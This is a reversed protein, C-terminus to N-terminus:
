PKFGLKENILTSIGYTSVVLGRVSEANKFIIGDAPPQLEGTAVMMTNVASATIQGYANFGVSVYGKVTINEAASSSASESLRVDLSTPNLSSSETYKLSSWDAPKEFKAPLSGSADPPVFYIGTPLEVVDGKRVWFAAGVAPKVNVMVAARRLYTEPDDKDGWVVISANSLNLAAQARAGSVLASLSSQAGQMAVGRDGNSLALGLSGVLIGIVAIVVLLEVLTFARRKSLPSM